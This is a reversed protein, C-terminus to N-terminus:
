DVVRMVFQVIEDASNIAMQLRQEQLDPLAHRFTVPSSM